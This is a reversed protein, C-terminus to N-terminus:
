GEMEVVFFQTIAPAVIYVSCRQDKTDEAIYKQQQIERLPYTIDNGQWNARDKPKNSRSEYTGNIFNGTALSVKPLQNAIKSGNM